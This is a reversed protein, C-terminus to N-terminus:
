CYIEVVCQEVMNTSSGVSLANGILKEVDDSTVPNWQHMVDTVM